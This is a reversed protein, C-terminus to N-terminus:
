RLPAHSVPLAAASAADYLSFSLLLSAMLTDVFLSHQPLSFGQLCIICRSYINKNLHFPLLEMAGAELIPYQLARSVSHIADMANLYYNYM